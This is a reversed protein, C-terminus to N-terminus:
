NLTASQYTWDKTQRQNEVQSVQQDKGAPTQRRCTSWEQPADSTGVHLGTRACVSLLWRGTVSSYKQHLSANQSSM